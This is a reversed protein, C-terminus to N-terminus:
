RITTRASRFARGGRLTIVDTPSFRYRVALPALAEPPAAPTIVLTTKFRDWIDPPLGVTRVELERMAGGPLPEVVLDLSQFLSMKRPEMLTGQITLERPQIALSVALSLDHRGPPLNVHVINAYPSRVPHGDITVSEIRGSPFVGDVTGLGIITLPEEADMTYHERLRQWGAELVM